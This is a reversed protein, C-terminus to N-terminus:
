GKPASMARLIPLMVGPASQAQAEVVSATQDTAIRPLRHRLISIHQLTRALDDALLECALKAMAYETTGRPRDDIASSSPQFVRAKEPLKQANMAECLDGFPKAYIDIFEDFRARDFIGASKNFIRPTAFYYAHDIRGLEAFMDQISDEAARFRRIRCNGGAQQIDGAVQIADGEGGAWTILVEAGGAALLKATAEGIGRSGGVVLARIGAFEGPAVLTALVRTDPQLAPSPRVFARAEGLLSGSFRVVAIRFREDFSDLTFRLEQTGADRNPLSFRFSAWMSHLGPCLMGIVYSSRAISQVTTMGLLHCAGPFYTAFDAEPLSVRSSFGAWASIPRDDAISVLPLLEGDVESALADTSSAPTTDSATTVKVITCTLGRVTAAIRVTPGSAAMAYIVPDDASVMNLFECAVATVRGSIRAAFLDMGTLAILAGHVVPKGTGVRRAALPDTHMPNMDGSMSGFARCDAVSFTRTATQQEGPENTMTKVTSLHISLPYQGGGSHITHSPVHM